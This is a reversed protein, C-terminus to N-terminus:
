IVNNEHKIAMAFGETFEPNPAKGTPITMVLGDTQVSGTHKLGDRKWCRRFWRGETSRRVGGRVFRCSEEGSEPLRSSLVASLYKTKKRAHPDPRQGASESFGHAKSAFLDIKELQASIEAAHEPPM